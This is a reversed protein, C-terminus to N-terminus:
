IFAIYCLLRILLSSPLLFSILPPPPPAGLFAVMALRANKIEKQKLSKLDGKSFSLPDFGAPLFPAPLPAPLRTLRPPMRRDAAAAASEAWLLATNQTERPKQGLGANSQLVQCGIFLVIYLGWFPWFPLLGVGAPQWILRGPYGLGGYTITNGFPDKTNSGPARLDQARNSEAWLFLLFSM